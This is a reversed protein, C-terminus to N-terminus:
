LGWCLYELLMIIGLVGNPKNIVLHGHLRSPIYSFGCNTHFGISVEPTAFVSKETVVSFKMPVILSAGGGM